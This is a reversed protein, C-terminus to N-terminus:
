QNSAAVTQQRQKLITRLRAILRRKERLLMPNHLDAIAHQFSLHSLQEEEDRIHEAIEESSLERIEKAKM